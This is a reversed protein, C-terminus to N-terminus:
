FMITLATMVVIGIAITAIAVPDFRWSRAIAASFGTRSAQPYMM